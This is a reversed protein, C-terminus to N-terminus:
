YRKAYKVAKVFIVIAVSLFLFEILWSNDVDQAITCGGNTPNPSYIFISQEGHTTASTIWGEDAYYTVLRYYLKGFSLPSSSAAICSMDGLRLTVISYGGCPSYVNQPNDVYVNGQGTVYDASQTKYKYPIAGSHLDVIYMWPVNDLTVLSLVVAVHYVGSNDKYIVREGSPPSVQLGNVGLDNLITSMIAQFDVSPALDLGAPIDNYYDGFIDTPNNDTDLSVNLVAGYVRVSNDYMQQFRLYKPQTASVYQQTGNPTQVYMASTSSTFYSAFRLDSLDPKFGYFPSVSQLFGMANYYQNIATGALVSFEVNAVSVNGAKDAIAASFNYVDNGLTAQWSAVSDNVSFYSTTQSHNLIASFGSIDIGAGCDSYTVTFVVSASDLVTNDVPTSINIDPPTNDIMLSGRSATVEDILKTATNGNGLDAIRIFQVALEYYYQGDPLANGNSDTGNWSVETEVPIFINAGQMVTNTPFIPTDGTLVNVVGNVGTITITWRLYFDKLIACLVAHTHRVGKVTRM